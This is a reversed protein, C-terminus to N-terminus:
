ICVCTHVCVVCLMCVCWVGCVQPVAVPAMVEELPREGLAEDQARQTQIAVTEQGKHPPAVTHRGTHINTRALTRTRSHMHTNQPLPSLTSAQTYTRTLTRTHTHGPFPTQM